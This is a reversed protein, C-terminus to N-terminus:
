YKYDALDDNESVGYYVKQRTYLFSSSHIGVSVLKMHPHEAAKFPANYGPTVGGGACVMSYNIFWEDLMGLHMLGNAYTPSEIMVRELGMKRLVYMFLATDPTTGEGTVIVPIEDYKEFVPDFVAADVEERSTFPGYFIHKKPSNERIYHMGAPSTGIMMKLGEEPDVNWTDHEFPIDTGDFSVVISAPHYKKGLVEFRQCNLEEEYVHSTVGDENQLTRAGIVVGDAYARLMNLVWFDCLAGDSDFFNNRAIIPGKPSDTFAMKGDASLVISSMTYPRDEPADPFVVDTYFKHVDPLVTRDSAQESISRMLAENEEIMRIKLNEKPMTFFDLKKM